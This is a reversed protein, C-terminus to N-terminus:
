LQFMALAASLTNGMSHTISTARRSDSVADFVSRATAFLGLRSVERLLSAFPAAMARHVLFRPRSAM